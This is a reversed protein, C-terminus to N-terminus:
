SSGNALITVMPYRDYNLSDGDRVVQWDDLWSITGDSQPAGM